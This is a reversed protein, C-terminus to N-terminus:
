ACLTANELLPELNFLIEYISEPSLQSLPMVAAISMIPKARFSAYNAYALTGFSQM